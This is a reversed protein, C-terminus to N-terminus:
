KISNRWFKTRTCLVKTKMMVFKPNYLFAGHTTDQRENRKPAIMVDTYIFFLKLATNILIYLIKTM